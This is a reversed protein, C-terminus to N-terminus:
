LRDNVKNKIDNIFDKPNEKIERFSDCTHMTM